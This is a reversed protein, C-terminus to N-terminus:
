RRFAKLRIAEVSPQFSVPPGERTRGNKMEQGPGGLGGTSAAGWGIPSTAM